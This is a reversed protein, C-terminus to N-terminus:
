KESKGMSARCGNSSGQAEERFLMEAANELARAKYVVKMVANADDDYDVVSFGPAEEDSQLKSEDSKPM